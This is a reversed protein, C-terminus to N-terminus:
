PAVRFSAPSIHRHRPPADPAHKRRPLRGPLPLPAGVLLPAVALHIEDVLGQSLFQTHIQGGDEVMLREVGRAALDDLLAGFDVSEGTNVVDALGNLEERLKAASDTTYIVKKDRFHWFKLNRSLDGSASITM